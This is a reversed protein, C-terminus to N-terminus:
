PFKTRSPSPIRFFVVSAYFLQSPFPFSLNFSVSFSNLTSSFYISILLRCLYLSFSFSFSNISQFLHLSFYISIWLRSFISFCFSFLSLCLIYIYTISSFWFLSVFFSVEFFTSFLLPFSFFSLSLYKFSHLFYFPFFSSLSLSLYKFFPSFSSFFFSLTISVTVITSM